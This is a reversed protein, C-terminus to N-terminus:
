FASSFDPFAELFLLTPTPVPFPFFRALMLLLIEESVLEELGLPILLFLLLRENSPFPFPTPFLADGLLSKLISAELIM